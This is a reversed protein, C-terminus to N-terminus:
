RRVRVERWVDRLAWPVLVFTWIVGVVWQFRFALPVAALLLLTLVIRGVPGFTVSSGTWRSQRYEVRAARPVDDSRHTAVPGAFTAAPAPTFCLPCWRDGATLSRECRACRVGGSADDM